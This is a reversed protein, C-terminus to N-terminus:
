MANIEKSFYVVQIYWNSLGIYMANLECLRPRM